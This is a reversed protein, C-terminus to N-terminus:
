RTTPEIGIAPEMNLLPKESSDIKGNQISTLFLYSKEDLVSIANKIHAKSLHSYRLTMKIDKHGLLEKVTMLDVGKMVLWSAFTHRLDHFHFDLIRSKKLANHWAKKFDYYPKLTEPNYFVYDADIRRVLKSLVTHLNNNIPIERREGNKTKDLLIVRNKLDVRDWTLNIIESRRMGTNLATIVVPKLYGTCNDILREAEEESLYRLRTNEGKLLKVKRVKKLTEEPALEWDLAKALMRKLVAVLRNAYAISLGKKIIDSQMNEIAMISFNDLRINKFYKMLTRVFSKLREHSKLRGNTYSLYREALENFYVATKAAPEIETKKVIGGTDIQQRLESAWREYVAQAETRYNTGTSQFYKIGNICKTMMFYKSGKKKYIGM